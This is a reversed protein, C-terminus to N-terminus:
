RQPKESPGPKPKAGQAANTVFHEVENMTEQMAKRLRTLSPSLEESFIAHSEVDIGQCPLALFILAVTKFVTIM